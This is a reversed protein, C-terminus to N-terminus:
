PLITGGVPLTDVLSLLSGLANTSLPLGGGLSGLGPLADTLGMVPSLLDTPLGGGLGGGLAGVLPLGGGLLNGGLLNSVVPIDKYLNVHSLHLPLYSNATDIVMGNVLMSGWYPLSGSMAFLANPTFVQVPLGGITEGVIPLGEATSLLSGMIDTSIPMGSGLSLMDTPLGGDLLGAVPLADLSLLDTPLVNAVSGLVPLGAVPGLIELVRGETQVMDVDAMMAINVEEQGFLYTADENVLEAGNVSCLLGAAALSMVVKKM